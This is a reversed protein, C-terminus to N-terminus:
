GEGKQQNTKKRLEENERMVALLQRALSCTLGGCDKDKCPIASIEKIEGITYTM